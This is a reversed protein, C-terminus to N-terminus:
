MLHRKHALSFQHKIALNKEELKITLQKKLDSNISLLFPHSVASRAHHGVEKGRKKSEPECQLRIDTRTGAMLTKGGTRLSRTM